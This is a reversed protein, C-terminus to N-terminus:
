VDAEAHDVLEPFPQVIKLFSYTQRGDDEGGSQGAHRYRTIVDDIEAVLADAEDRSLRLAHSAVNTRVTDDDRAALATAVLHQCKALM